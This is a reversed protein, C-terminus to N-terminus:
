RERVDPAGAPGPIFRENVDLQERQADSMPIIMDETPDRDVPLYENARSM